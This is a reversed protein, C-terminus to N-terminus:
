LADWQSTFNKCSKLSQFSFEYLTDSELNLVKCRTPTQILTKVVIYLSFLVTCDNIVDRSFKTPLLSLNQLKRATEFAM